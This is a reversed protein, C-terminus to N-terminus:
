SCVDYRDVVECIAVIVPPPGSVTQEVGDVIRKVGSGGAAVSVFNAARAAAAAAAGNPGADVAFASSAPVSGPNVADPRAVSARGAAAGAAGAAAAAAARFTAVGAAAARSTARWAAIRAGWQSYMLSRSLDNAMYVGKGM